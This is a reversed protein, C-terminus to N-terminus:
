WLLKMKRHRSDRTWQLGLWMWGASCAAVVSAAILVRLHHTWFLEKNDILARATNRPDYIVTVQDGVKFSYRDSAVRADRVAHRGHNDTFEFVPYWRPGNRGSVKVMRTVQGETKRGTNWLQLNGALTVLTVACMSLSFALLIGGTLKVVRRKLARERREAM